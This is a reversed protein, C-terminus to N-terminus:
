LDRVLNADVFMKVHPRIAGQEDVFRFRIGPYRADLAALADAVRASGGVLLEVERIGSTYADVLAPLRVRIAGPHVDSHRGASDREARRRRLVRSGQPTGGASMQARRCGDRSEVAADKRAPTREPRATGAQGAAGRERWRWRMSIRCTARWANGRAARTAAAGSRAARRASTFVWQRPTTWACPKVSSPGGRRRRPCGRRKASGPADPM